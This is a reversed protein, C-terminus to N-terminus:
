RNIIQIYSKVNKYLKNLSVRAIVTKLIMAQCVTYSPESLIKPATHTLSYLRQKSAPLVHCYYFLFLVFLGCCYYCVQSATIQAISCNM